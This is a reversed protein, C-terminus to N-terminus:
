PRKGLFIDASSFAPGSRHYEAWTFQWGTPGRYVNGASIRIELYMPIKYTTNIDGSFNPPLVHDLVQQIATPGSPFTGCGSLALVVLLIAIRM